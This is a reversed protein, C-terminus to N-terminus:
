QSTCHLTEVCSYKKYHNKNPHNVKDSFDITFAKQNKTDSYSVLCPKDLFPIACLFFYDVENDEYKVTKVRSNNHYTKTLGFVICNSNMSHSTTGTKCQVKKYGNYNILLDHGIDVIPTYVDIKLKLFECIAINVGLQGNLRYDTNKSPTTM